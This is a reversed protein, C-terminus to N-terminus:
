HGMAHLMLFVVFLVTIVILSPILITGFARWASFRHVEGICQLSIFFGWIGLVVEAVLIKYFAPDIHPMTGPTRLPIPIGSLVAILLIIVAAIGPLQSWALAARVELRSAVGGLLAGSWQFVAAFIYLFLVGLAAQIAVGVAVWVPWLASLNANNNFAKAWQGTLTSIAPGIAALAIVYRTPNSNIIGRITARPETWITFFPAISEAGGNSM